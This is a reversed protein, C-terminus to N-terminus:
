PTITILLSIKSLSLSKLLSSIKLKSKSPSTASWSTGSGNMEVIITNWPAGSKAFITKLIPVIFIKVTRWGAHKMAQEKIIITASTGSVPGALAHFLSMKVTAIRQTICTSTCGFMINMMTSQGTLSGTESIQGTVTETTSLKKLFSSKPAIM